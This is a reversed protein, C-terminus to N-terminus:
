FFMTDEADTIDRRCGTYLFGSCTLSRFTFIEM